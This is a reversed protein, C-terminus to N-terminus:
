LYRIFEYCSENTCYKNEEVGGCLHCYRKNDECEPCNDGIYSKGCGECVPMTLIDLPSKM